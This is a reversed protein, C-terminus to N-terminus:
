YTVFREEFERGPSRDGLRCETTRGFFSYRNDAVGDYAADRWGLPVPAAAAALVPLLTMAGLGAAIRRVAESRIHFGDPEVLVISSIDDPSRGSRQLLARGCPSQLAALRFRGPSEPDLRLMVDVAGNCLNCVGDYLIIPRRDQPPFYRATVQSPDFSTSATTADTSTTAAVVTAAPAGRRRHHHHQQQHHARARGRYQQPPARCSQMATGSPTTPAGGRSQIQPTSLTQHHHHHHHHHHLSSLSSPSAASSAISCLKPRDSENNNNIIIVIRQVGRAALRVLRKKM